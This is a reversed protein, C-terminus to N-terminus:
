RRLVVLVLVVVLLVLLLTTLWGLWQAVGLLSHWLEAVREAIQAFYRPV